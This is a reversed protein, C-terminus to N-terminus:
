GNTWSHSVTEYGDVTFISTEHVHWGRAQNAFVRILVTTVRSIMGLGVIKHIKDVERETKADVQAAIEIKTKTANDEEGM